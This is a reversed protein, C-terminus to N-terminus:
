LIRSMDVYEDAGGATSLAPDGPVFLTGDRTCLMGFVEIWSLSPFVRMCASM